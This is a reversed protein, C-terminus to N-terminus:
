ELIVEAPPAGARVEQTSRDIYGQEIGEEELEKLYKSYNRYQMGAVVMRVTGVMTACMGMFRFIGLIHAEPQPQIALTVALGGAIFVPSFVIAQKEGTKGKVAYEYSRRWVIEAIATLEHPKVFSFGCVQCKKVEPSNKTGCYICYRFFKDETDQGLLMAGCYSCYRSYIGNVRGCIPCYVVGEEYGQEEAESGIEQALTRRVASAEGESLEEAVAGDNDGNTEGGGVTGETEQALPVSGLASLFFLGLIFSVITTKM